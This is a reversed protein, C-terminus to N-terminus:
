GLTQSETSVKGLGEITEGNVLQSLMVEFDADNDAALVKKIDDVYRDPQCDESIDSDSEESENEIVKTKDEEEKKIIEEVHTSFGM